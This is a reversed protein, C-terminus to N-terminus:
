QDRNDKSLIKELENIRKELNKFKKIGKYSLYIIVVYFILNLGNIFLTFFIESLDAMVTEKM